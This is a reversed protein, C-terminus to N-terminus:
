CVDSMRKYITLYKFIPLLLTKHKYGDMSFDARHLLTEDSKNYTHDNPNQLVCRDLDNYISMITNYVSDSSCRHIVLLNSPLGEDPGTAPGENFNENYDDMYLAHFDWNNDDFFYLKINETPPKGPYCDKLVSNYFKNNTPIYTDDNKIFIPTVDKGVCHKEYISLVVKYVTVFTQVLKTETIVHLEKPYVKSFKTFLYNYFMPTDYAENVIDYWQSLSIKSRESNNVFNYLYIAISRKIFLDTDM